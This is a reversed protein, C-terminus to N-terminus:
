IMVIKEQKEKRAKKWFLYRAMSGQKRQTSNHRIQKLCLRSIIARTNKVKLRMVQASLSKLVSIPLIKPLFNPLTAGNRTTAHCSSQRTKLYVPIINLIHTSKKKSTTTSLIFSMMKQTKRMRCISNAM